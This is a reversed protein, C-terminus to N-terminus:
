NVQLQIVHDNLAIALLSLYPHWAICRISGTQGPPYPPLSSFLELQRSVSLGFGLQPSFMHYVYDCLSILTAIGHIARGSYFSKRSTREELSSSLTTLLSPLDRGSRFAIWARKWPSEDTEVFPSPEAM